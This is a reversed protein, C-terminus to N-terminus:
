THLNAPYSVRKTREQLFLLMIKGSKIKLQFIIEGSLPYGNAVSPSAKRLKFQLNLHNPKNAGISVM